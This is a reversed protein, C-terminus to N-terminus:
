KKKFITKPKTKSPKKGDYKSFVDEILQELMKKRKKLIEDSSLMNMLYWKPFGLLHYMQVKEEIPPRICKSYYKKHLHELPKFTVCKGNKMIKAKSDFNVDPLKEKEKEKEKTQNEKIQKKELNILEELRKSFSEKKNEETQNEELNMLKELREEENKMLTMAIGLEHIAEHVPLNHYRCHKVWHVANTYRLKVVNMSEKAYFTFNDIKRLKENVVKKPKQTIIRGLFSDPSIEGKEANGFKRNRITPRIYQTEM